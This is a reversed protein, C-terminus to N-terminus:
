PAFKQIRANAEDVVYIFGDDDVVLSGAFARDGTGTLGGRGFNFEGEGDGFHGWETIYRRASSFAVIRANGADLVYIRGDPGVDFSTPHVFQDAPRGPNPGINEPMFESWNAEQGVPVRGM